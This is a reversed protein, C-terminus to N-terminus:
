PQQYQSPRRYRAGGNMGPPPPTPKKPVTFEHMELAHLERRARDDTPSITEVIEGNHAPIIHRRQKQAPPALQVSREDDMMTDM